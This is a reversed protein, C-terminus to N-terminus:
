TTAQQIEVKLCGLSRLSILMQPKKELDGEICNSDPDSVSINGRGVYQVGYIGAPNPKAPYLLVHFSVSPTGDQKGLGGYTVTQAKTLQSYISDTQSYM